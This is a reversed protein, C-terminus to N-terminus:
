ALPLVSQRLPRSGSPILTIIRNEDVFVAHPHFSGSALYTGHGSRWLWIPLERRFVVLGGGLLVLLAIPGKPVAEGIAHRVRQGPHGRMVGIMLALIESDCQTRPQFGYKRTWRDPDRVNGNHVVVVSGGNGDPAIHPHADDLSDPEEGSTALRCHGVSRGALAASSLLGLHDEIRGAHKVVQLGAATDCALGFAHPGRRGAAMAADAFIRANPTSGVFGFIGCM